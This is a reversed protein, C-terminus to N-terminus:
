AHKARQEDSTRTAADAIALALAATVFSVIVVLGHRFATAYEGDNASVQAYFVSGTIAIGAASGIRQATQLVGGASGARRVPM